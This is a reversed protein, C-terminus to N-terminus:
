VEGLREKKGYIKVGKCSINSILQRKNYHMDLIGALWFLATQMGNLGGRHM